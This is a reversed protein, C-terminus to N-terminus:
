RGACDYLDLVKDAHEVSKTLEGAWCYCDCASTHVVILLDADGTAEAIDLM